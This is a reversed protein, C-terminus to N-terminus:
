LFIAHILVGLFWTFIPLGLVWMKTDLLHPKAIFLVFSLIVGLAFFWPIISGFFLIWGIIWLVLLTITAKKGYLVAFTKIHGVRDGAIDPIDKIISYPILIGAVMLIISLPLAHATQNSAILFYGLSFSTIGSLTILITSTLWFRKLRIGSSHITYIGMFVLICFFVNHGMLLGGTITFLLSVTQITRLEPITMHQGTLWWSKNSIKDIEFDHIDNEIGVVSCAFLLSIIAVFFGLWDPWTLIAAQISSGILIGFIVLFVHVFAIPLKAAFGRWWGLWTKKSIIFWSIGIFVLLVLFQVQALLTTTITATIPTFPLSDTPYHISSLLSGIADSTFTRSIINPFHGGIFAITYASIAMGLSRIFSRTTIFVLGALGVVIAIIQFRLGPTIGCLQAHPLLFYIFNQALSQGGTQAYGICFGTGGSLALDIIPTLLILPFVLIITRISWLLSKKSLWSLVLAIMLILMGYLTAYSIIGVLPAFLGTPEPSSFNELFLRITALAFVAVMMSVVSFDLSDLFDIIRKM